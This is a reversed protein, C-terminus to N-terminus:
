AAIVAHKGRAHLIAEAVMPAYKKRLVGKKTYFSIPVEITIGNITMIVDGHSIRQSNGMIHSYDKHCDNGIKM